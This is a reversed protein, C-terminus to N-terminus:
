LAPSPEQALEDLYCTLEPSRRSLWTRLSKLESALESEGKEVFGGIDILIAQDGILGVNRKPSPDVDHIGKDKRQQLCNVIQKLIHKSQNVDQRDLSKKLSAVAGESKKQLAFPIDSLCLRHSIGLPDIITVYTHSLFPNPNLNMYLLGTEQKLHTHALQCSHFLKHLKNKQHILLRDRLTSLGPPLPIKQLWTYPRLNHMKFFKIVIQNNQSVFAYSQGGKGLFSFPQKLLENLENPNQSAISWEANAPLYSRIKTIQFGQTQRNCFVSLACFALCFYLIKM